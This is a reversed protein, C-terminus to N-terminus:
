AVLKECRDHGDAAQIGGFCRNHVIDFGGKEGIVVRTKAQGPIQDFAVAIEGAASSLACMVGHEIGLHGALQFQELRVFQFGKGIRDVVDGLLGIRYDPDAKADTEDGCQQQECQSQDGATPNDCADVVDNFGQTGNRTFVAVHTNPYRDFTVIFHGFERIPEVTKNCPQFADGGFRGAFDAPEGKGVRQCVQRIAPEEISVQLGLNRATASQRFGERDHKEIQIVELQNVVPETVVCPIGQDALNGTAEFLGQAAAIEDCM